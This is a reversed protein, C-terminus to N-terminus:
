LHLFDEKGIQGNAVFIKKEFDSFYEAILVDFELGSFKRFCKADTTRVFFEGVVNAVGLHNFKEEGVTFQTQFDFILDDREHEIGAQGEVLNFQIQIAERM